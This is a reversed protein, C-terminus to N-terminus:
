FKATLSAFIRRGLADYVQPYTNGNGFGAGVQSSLPPSEDFLNNIGGRLTLNKTINWSGALDIYNQAKLKEDVSNYPGSLLPNSSTREFKVEAIYRWTLAVDVSWPTTWTFRAKHRWEPLPTGCVGSGYLGACDYEGQGPIPEQKFEKLYTGIFNVNLSGWGDQLKTNYDGSVDFGSTKWKSLNQNTAIIRAQPTLWLTGLADRQILNCFQGRDLCLQLVTPSPLTSIVDEVKMQFYDLSVNFDKMPTLVIGLTSTKGTEPKLQPNGGALQNYQGAASDVIRGYQSATVGTRACDALSRAPTPGACPDSDMDYLQIGQAQYLEIVNAARVAQQYSGRLKITKTPSWDLGLGYTDTSQGTSYDSYRYSGSLALVEAFERGEILPVRVEGFFDSVTYQGGLGITPGGQGFLDGSSFASDTQLELKETRREVGFAVGVGSKAGPVQVGYSGLDSSLSASQVKQETYGRQLGPTQLYALADPTVGGLRWINYPVCTPDSGDVVSRCAPQGNAGTVVDMARASRAQSFDNLYSESYNVRGRMLYVDYNWNKAFDGKIGVVGRYSTHDITDQRGGGEVNRRLISMSATDGPNRLGLTNRWSQSLLPNAYNVDTVLGFLGSPAIQATTSDDHLSLETYVRVNPNVDYHAFAAATYRESPRQYYNLPGFNYLDTGSSFPRVTGSADAVTYSRGTNNDIFRGPYSTSSGGCAFGASSSSLSCSSYDRTAQLVARTKKYGMFVTANGKGDAFNSGLTLNYDSEEGDSSVDGPVKFNAPNTVARAAVIDAVGQANDQKHNYFSYNVEGQVGQFKDNMIFNVVGAVADSGYVASAGGTLVEVRRILAAPIQNLDAAYPGRPSGAPLRRGNVLVLTRDAGLNRLNVTATGSAGNSVNGGQDAFVQPLNNLLNEVNRVGEIKIDDASIVAIPSVSEINPSPVRTGTIELKEVKEAPASQAFALPAAMLSIAIETAIVCTKRRFSRAPQKKNSM